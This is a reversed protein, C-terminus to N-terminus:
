VGSLDFNPIYSTDASDLEQFYCNHTGSEIIHNLVKEYERRTVKRNIPKINKADGCPVYQSMISFYAGPANKHVFDYVDIADNTAAPLLLHRVVVGRKIMGNKFVCEGTQKYATILASRAFDPYNEAGSLRKANPSDLYKLDFLFVDVYGDLRKIVSELEYGGTNYVIPIKPKYIDLAKIIAFSYHTPTVLNINEAGNAELERFIDALRSISIDKGFNNHSVDYNQCFVCSLSCGSFFVTGSGNKGSIFPEEYFHLGARAVRVTEGAGCYGGFNDPGERVAGCKRPCLNCIM